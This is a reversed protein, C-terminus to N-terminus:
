KKMLELEYLPIEYHIGSLSHVITANGWKDISIIKFSVGKTKRGKIKCKSGIKLM